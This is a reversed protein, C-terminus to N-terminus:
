FVHAAESRVHGQFKGSCRHIGVIYQRVFTDNSAQQLMVIQLENSVDETPFAITLLPLCHVIYYEHSENRAKV